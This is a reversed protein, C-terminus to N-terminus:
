RVTLPGMTALVAIVVALEAAVFRATRVDIDPLRRAGRICALPRALLVLLVPTFVLPWPALGAAATAALFVASGFTLLVYLWAAARGGALHALTRVGARADEAADRLNNGVLIATTAMGIPVSLLLTAPEIRGTQAFAAGTMLLPGFLLFIMAEGMARHKLKLPPGTYAYAGAGAGAAFWLLRPGCLFVLAVSVAVAALLFAAAEALVDAPALEGRLLGRGPRGADDRTRSDAGSRYDFYDNLLNGALHFCAAGIASLALVLRNWEAPPRVAAAAAVVPLVSVPLSFARLARLRVILWNANM